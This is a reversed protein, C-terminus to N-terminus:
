GSPREDEVPDQGDGVRAVPQAVHRAKGAVDEAEVDSEDVQLFADLDELSQTVALRRIKGHDHSQEDKGDGVDAAFQALAAQEPVGHADEELVIARGQRHDEERAEDVHPFHLLNRELGQRRPYREHRSHRVPAPENVEPIDRHAIDKDGDGEGKQQRNEKPEVVITHRGEQGQGKVVGLSLWGLWGACDGGEDGLAGFKGEFLGRAEM